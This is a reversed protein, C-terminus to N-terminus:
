KDDRCKHRLDKWKQWLTFSNLTYQASIYLTPRLYDPENLKASFRFSNLFSLGLFAWLNKKELEWVMAAPVGHLTNAQGERKLAGIRGKPVPMKNKSSIPDIM